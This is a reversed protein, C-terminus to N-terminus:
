VDDVFNLSFGFKTQIATAKNEEQIYKLNTTFSLDVFNRFRRLFAFSASYDSKFKIKYSTQADIQYIGGILFSTSMPNLGKNKLISFLSVDDSVKANLGMVTEVDYAFTEKKITDKSVITINGIESKRDVEKEEKMILDKLVSVSLIGSINPSDFGILTKAEQLDDKTFNLHAGTWTNANAENVLRYLAGITLYPARLNCFTRERNKTGVIGLNRMGFNLLLSNGYNYLLNLTSNMNFHTDISSKKYLGINHLKDDSQWVTYEGECTMENENHNVETTYLPSPVWILKYNTSGVLRGDKVNFTRLGSFRFNKKYFSFDGGIKL